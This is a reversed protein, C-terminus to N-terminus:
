RWSRIEEKKQQRDFRAKHIILSNLDLNKNKAKLEEVKRRWQEDSTQQAARPESLWWQKLSDFSDNDKDVYREAPGVTQERTASHEVRRINLLEWVLNPCGYEYTGDTGTSVTQPCFIKFMVTESEWAQLIQEVLLADRGKTGRSLNPFGADVFLKVISSFDTGQTIDVDMSPDYHTSRIYALTTPRVSNVTFPMRMGKITKTHAEPTWGSRRHEQIAYKCGHEDVSGVTFATPHRKGWDLGAGYSWNPDPKWATDEIIIDKWRRELVERLVLEGGGAQFDIWQERRWASKSYADNRGQEEWAVGRAPDANFLIWLVPQGRSNSSRFVGRSVKVGDPPLSVPRFDEAPDHILKHLDGSVMRAM